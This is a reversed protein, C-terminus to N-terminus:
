RMFEHDEREIVTDALGIDEETVGMVCFGDVPSIDHIDLKDADILRGHPTHVEILPCDHHRESKWQKEDLQKDMIDCLIMDMREYYNSCVCAKCTNPMEMNIILVSM